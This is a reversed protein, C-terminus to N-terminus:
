YILMPLNHCLVDNAFSAALFCVGSPGFSASVVAPAGASAGATEAAKRPATKPRSAIFAASSACGAIGLCLPRRWWNPKPGISMNNLEDLAFLCRHLPYSARVCVGHPSHNLATVDHVYPQLPHKVAASKVAATRTDDHGPPNQNM